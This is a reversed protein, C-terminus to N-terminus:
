VLWGVLVRCHHVEIRQCHSLFWRKALLLVPPTVGALTHSGAAAFWWKKRADGYHQVM